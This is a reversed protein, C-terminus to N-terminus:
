LEYVEKPVSNNQTNRKKNRDTPTIMKFADYTAINEKAYRQVYITRTYFNDIQAILKIGAKSYDKLM